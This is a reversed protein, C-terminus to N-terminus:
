YSWKLTVNWIKKTGELIDNFCIPDSHTSDVTENINSILELKCFTKSYDKLIIGHDDELFRFYKEDYSFMNNKFTYATYGEAMIKKLTLIKTMPIENINGNKQVFSLSYPYFHTDTYLLTDRGNFSVILSQNPLKELDEFSKAEEFPNNFYFGTQYFDQISPMTVILSLFFVVIIILYISKVLHLIKQHLVHEKSFCQNWGEVLIFGILTFSLLSAPIMYRNNAHKSLNAALPDSTALPSSYFIVIVVIFFLLILTEKRKIKFYLSILLALSLMLFSIYSIWIDSRWVELDTDSTIISFFYLPDPLLPVSYYQVLQLRQFKNRVLDDIQKNPEIQDEEHDGIKGRMQEQYNTEPDGFYYANFSLWFILFIIWPVLLFFSIKFFKKLNLKSFIQRKLIVESNNKNRNFIKSEKLYSVVFFGLIILIETPFFAIGNIRIFTSITFFTSSFLVYRHEQKHIFRIICFVGLIFFLSFLNDTLFRLGVFFIQWDGVVFLLALLGVLNGFLKTAFRELIILLIITVIPGFYFLGFLGGTLYFFLGIAYIGVSSKPIADNQSTRVYSDPVYRYYPGSTPNDNEQELNNTIAFNGKSLHITEIGYNVDDFGLYFPIANAFLSFSVFGIIIIKSIKILFDQNKKIALYELLQM